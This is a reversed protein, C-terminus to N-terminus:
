KQFWLHDVLCVIYKVRHQGKTEYLAQPCSDMKSFSWQNRPILHYQSFTKQPSWIKGEWFPIMKFNFNLILVKHKSPPSLSTNYMCLIQLCTASGLGRWLSSLMATPHIHQTPALLTHGTAVLVQQGHPKSSIQLLLSAIEKCFLINKNM